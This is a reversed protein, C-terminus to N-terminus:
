GNHRKAKADKVGVGVHVGVAKGVAIGVGVLM